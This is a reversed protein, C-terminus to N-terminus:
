LGQRSIKKKERSEEVFHIQPQGLKALAKTCVRQHLGADAQASPRVSGCGQSREGVPKARFWAFTALIAPGPFRHQERLLSRGLDSGDAAAETAPVFHRVEMGEGQQLRSELVEKNSVAGLSGLPQFVHWAQPPKTAQSPPVERDQLVQIGLLRAEQFRLLSRRSRLLARHHRSLGQSRRPVGRGRGRRHSLAARERAVSRCRRGRSPAVRQLDLRLRLRLGPGRSGHEKGEGHRSRSM